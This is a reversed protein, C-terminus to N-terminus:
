LEVPQGYATDHHDRVHRTSLNPGGPEEKAWELRLQRKPVEGTTLIARVVAVDVHLKVAVETEDYNLVRLIQVAELLEDDRSM